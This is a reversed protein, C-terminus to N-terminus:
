DAPAEPPRRALEVVVDWRPVLAHLTTELVGGSAAQPVCPRALLWCLERWRAAATLRLGGVGRM